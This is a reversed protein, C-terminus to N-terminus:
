ELGAQSKFIALSKLAEDRENALRENEDGLAIVKATLEGVQGLFRQREGQDSEANKKAAELEKVKAQLRGSDDTLANFSNTLKQLEADKSALSDSAQKFKAENQTASNSAESLDKNCKEVSKESSALRDQADALTKQTKTLNSDVSLWLILFLIFGVWALISLSLKLINM